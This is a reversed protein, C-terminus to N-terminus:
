KEEFIKIYEKRLISYFKYTRPMEKRILFDYFCGELRLGLKQLVRESSFNNIECKAEIRHLKITNFGYELVMKLAETMYGKNQYAPSLVYAIEGRAHEPFFQIFGAIGIVNRTNKSEIAWQSAKNKSYKDIIDKIFAKTEKKDKHPYWSLIESTEPLSTFEFIDNVDNLRLKRLILRESELGPFKKFYLESQLTSM